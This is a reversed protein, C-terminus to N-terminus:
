ALRASFVDQFSFYYLSVNLTILSLIITFSFAIFLILQDRVTAMENDKSPNGSLGPSFHSENQTMHYMVWIFLICIRDM